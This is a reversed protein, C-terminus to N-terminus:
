GDPGAVDLHASPQLLGRLARLLRHVDHRGHASDQGHAKQEGPLGEGFVHHALQRTGARRGRAPERRLAARVGREGAGRPPLLRARRRDRHEGDRGSKGADSSGRREKDHPPADLHGIRRRVGRGIVILCDLGREDMAARVANWRRDREELSFSAAADGARGDRPFFRPDTVM